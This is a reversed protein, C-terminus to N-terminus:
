SGATGSSIGQKKGYGIARLRKEIDILVGSDEITAPLKYDEGDAIQQMTGRLIKGSITKPLAPVVVAIRFAAVPGIRERVMQVVETVIQNPDRDVSKLVLLGVPVQGKLEDHAGFVACEAV